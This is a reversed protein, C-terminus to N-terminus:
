YHTLGHHHQYSLKIRQEFVDELDELNFVLHMTLRHVSCCISTDPREVQGGKGDGSRQRCGATCESVCVCM